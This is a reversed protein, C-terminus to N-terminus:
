SYRVRSETMERSACWGYTVHTDNATEWCRKESIHTSSMDCIFEYTVGWRHCSADACLELRKRFHVQSYMVCSHTMDRSASWTVLRIWSRMRSHMKTKTSTPAQCTVYSHRAAHTVQHTPPYNSNYEQIYKLIFSEQIYKLICSEDHMLWTVHLYM